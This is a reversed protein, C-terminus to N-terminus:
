GPAGPELRDVASELVTAAIQEIMKIDAYLDDVRKTDTLPTFLTAPEFLNGTEAAILLEGQGATEGLSEDFVCRVNKGKLLTELELLREMFSPTLLYRAMVQDTGYVEFQKEFKPDVLGIRELKAGRSGFAKKGWGELANFIGKDRTVLTVGEVTRPFRIRILAGRFVTVYYTRNKSRRREQVHAEYLEFDAGHLAGYFNDEFNRRDGRPALGHGTFADFRAPAPPKERYSLGFAEALRTNLQLKVTRHLANMPAGGVAVTLAAFIVALGIFVPAPWGFVAGVGGIVAALGIAIPISMVLRRVAKKREGEKAELWPRLEARVTELDRM